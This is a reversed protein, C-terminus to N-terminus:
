GKGELDGVVEVGGDLLDEGWVGLGATARTTLTVTEPLHAQRIRESSDVAYAM